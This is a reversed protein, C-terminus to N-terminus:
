NGASSCCHQHAAANQPGSKISVGIYHYHAVCCCRLMSMSKPLWGAIHAHQSQPRSFVFPVIFKSVPPPVHSLDEGRNIALFGSLASRYIDCACRKDCPTFPRQVTCNWLRLWHVSATQAVADLCMILVCTRGHVREGRESRTRVRYHLM